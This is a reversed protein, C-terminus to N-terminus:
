TESQQYILQLEYPILNTPLLCHNVMFKPRTDDSILYLHCIASCQLYTAVSPTLFYSFQSLNLNCLTSLLSLIIFLSLRVRFLACPPSLITCPSLNFNKMGTELYYYIQKNGDFVAFKNFGFICAAHNPRTRDHEVM